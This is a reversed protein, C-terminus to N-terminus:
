RWGHGREKRERKTRGSGGDRQVLVLSTFAGFAQRGGQELREEVGDIRVVALGAGMHSADRAVREDERIRRVQRRGFLAADLADGEEVVDSLDMLRQEIDDVFRGLEGGLFAGATVIM